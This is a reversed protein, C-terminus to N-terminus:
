IAGCRAQEAKIKGIETMIARDAEGAGQYCMAKVQRIDLNPIHFERGVQRLLGEVQEKLDIGTEKKLTEAIRDATDIGNCVARISEPATRVAELQELQKKLQVDYDKTCKQLTGAGPNPIDPREQGFPSQAIAAGLSIVLMAGAVVVTRIRM